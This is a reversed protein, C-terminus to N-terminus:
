SYLVFTTTVLRKRRGGWEESGLVKSSKLPDKGQQGRQRFATRWTKEHCAREGEGLIRAEGQGFQFSREVNGEADM